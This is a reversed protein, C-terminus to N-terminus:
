WVCGWLLRARFHSLSVCYFHGVVPFFVDSVGAIVSLAGFGEVNGRLFWMSSLGRWNRQIKDFGFLLYPTPLCSQSGCLDIM